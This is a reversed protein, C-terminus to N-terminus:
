ISRSWPGSTHPPTSCPAAARGPAQGPSWRKYLKAQWQELLEPYPRLIAAAAEADLSEGDTFIERRELGDDDYMM